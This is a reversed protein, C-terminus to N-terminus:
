SREQASLPLSDRGAPPGLRDQAVQDGLASRRASQTKQWQNPQGRAKRVGSERTRPEFLGSMASTTWVASDTAREQGHEAPTSDCRERRRARQKLGRRGIVLAAAHHGSAESSIKLLLGLWHEAGWRSTYAPDVAVVTLGANTAMQVLRDRFKATPIGAVVRRFSRGRAGRNPRRGTRERGLERADQFDLDEIVVAHCGYDQAYHVLESIAARLRGDRTTTPHGTLDVPITLPSGMPNGSTDVVVAALHGANMDVALVRHARLDDLNPLTGAPTKWSGDLYWRNKDPDSSIDYRVAGSAAQAAIEDGRYSFAVRCSLRYRGHPRNALRTIPGPLKIEVWLGEPHFRITENGWPKGKEGDATLFLRCSEWQAQWVNKTLKAEALHHRVKALRKGGRCISIQGADLRINVENLRGVLVQLRKQKEFREARTAYGRRRGRRGGVTVALRRRIRNIRACLSRREAVLNRNALQWADESTRTIAGAWRSSTESTLSRKRERRSRARGPADLRGEHCRRALDKGALPGLYAGLAWLVEQDHRSVM